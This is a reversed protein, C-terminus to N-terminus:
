REWATFKRGSLSFFLRSGGKVETGPRPSVAAQDIISCRFPFCNMEMSSNEAAQGLTDLVWM